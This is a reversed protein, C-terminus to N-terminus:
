ADYNRRRPSRQEETQAVFVGQRLAETSKFAASLPEPGESLFSKPGATMAQDQQGARNNDASSVMCKVERPQTQTANRFTCLNRACGTM